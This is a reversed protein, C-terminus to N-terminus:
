AGGLAGLVIGETLIQPLVVPASAGPAWYLYLPVGDRGQDRLLATIAPDGRTWDAKLYAVGRAAFAERVAGARLAVRENVQCTICWAATANIFIPRGEARLAEVRAESWPESGQDSAAAAAPAASLQPLLGIAVVVAVGLAVAGAIRGRGAGAQQALGLLWLGAALVVAGVLGFLVGDPGAQQALVWVLWAAAAYMPFALAQRLREMWAGPRPLARALAPFLALLAYPLALGLGLSLFVAM